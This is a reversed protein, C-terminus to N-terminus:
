VIVTNGSMALKITTYALSSSFGTCFPRDRNMQFFLTCELQDSVAMLKVPKLFHTARETYLLLIYSKPLKQSILISMTGQSVAIKM